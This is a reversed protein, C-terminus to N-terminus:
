GSAPRAARAPITRATPSRTRSRTRCDCRPHPPWTRRRLGATPGVEISAGITAVDQGDVHALVQGVAVGVGVLTTAISTSPPEDRGTALQACLVPWAPDRDRRHLDLCHLCPSGAPAVLPGVLMIEDREEILLHPLRRRAHSAATLQAPMGLNVLVVFTAKGARLTRADAYPAARLVAEAAATGRPRDTDAPLLGGIADESAGVRGTVAPDVRGIGARALAACIPTVLRANGVVQVAAAARRRLSEAATPRVSEGTAARDVPRPATGTAAPRDAMAIASAESVLRKRVPEALTPPLLADTDIMVHAERLAALLAKVDSTGAGDRAAERLVGRETRSGDLLDLVRALAPDPLDVLLARTPDVGFQVTDGDRWLRRLGPLLTVRGRGSPIGELPASM